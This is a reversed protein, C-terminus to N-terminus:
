IECLDGDGFVMVTPSLDEVYLNQSPCLERM